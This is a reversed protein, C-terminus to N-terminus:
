SPDECSTCHVSPRATQELNIGVLRERRAPFCAPCRSFKELDWTDAFIRGRGAAQALTADVAREFTSLRPPSFSGSISLVDLAGNGLRTPILSVATAGCDLAFQASRVAWEVAASEDMFPPKVMVFARLAMGNQRIFQAARSFQELTMQKNLQPLIEPHVTELGMAIELTGPLLDRFPLCRAGVFAPHCEVIVREYRAVREAIAPYDAPPIAGPDFFSGSNYLKIQHAAGAANRELAQLARDIQLVIAGEPVETELTNRWLDCMLCRFPCERNTLFLTAVRALDGRETRETEVEFAHAQFPDVSHRAPRQELIWQTRARREAPYSDIPREGAM